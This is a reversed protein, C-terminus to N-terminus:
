KSKEMVDNGVWGVGGEAGKKQGEGVWGEGRKEKRGGGVGGRKKKRRGQRLHGFIGSGKGVSESTGDQSRFIHDCPASSTLSILRKLSNKSRRHDIERGVIKLLWDSAEM